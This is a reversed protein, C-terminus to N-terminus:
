LHEGTEATIIQHEIQWIADDIPPPPPQGADRMARAISRVTKPDATLGYTGQLFDAYSLQAATGAHLERAAQYGPFALAGGRDRIVQRIADDNLLALIDPVGLTLIEIERQTHAALDLIQAAGGLEGPQQAAEAREDASTTRLRAIEEPTPSLLLATLPAATLQALISIEAHESPQQLEIAVLRIHSRDLREAFLEELLAATAPELFVFARSRALLEGRDLGIARAIPTYPTLATPDLSAITTTYDTRSLEYVHRDGPIDIFAIAHTAIICQAGWQSMATSLWRAARRELAPHLHQEPEDLLYVRYRPARFFEAVDFDDFAAVHEPPADEAAELRPPLLTPERLYGLAEELMEKVEDLGNLNLEPEDHEPPEDRDDLEIGEAIDPREDRRQDWIRLLHRCGIQLNHSVILARHAAEYLALQLWVAFGAPADDIGFRLAGDNPNIQVWDDPDEEGTDAEQAPDWDPDATDRRMLALRVFRGQAIDSPQAPTIELRYEGAIFDPLLPTAIRELAACAEVAAPHVVSAHRQEEILWPWSPAGDIYPKSPWLQRFSEPPAGELAGAHGEFLWWDNALEQLSRCVSMVAAGVRESVASASSPVAIADPLIAWEASGLYEVKVPEEADGLAASSPLAEWIEDRVAPELEILARGSRWVGLDIGDLRVGIRVENGESPLEVADAWPAVDDVFECIGFLDHGDPDVLAALEEGSVIGFVDVMEALEFDTLVTEILRLVRTKGSDNRGTLVTVDGFRLFGGQVPDEYAFSIGVLRRM